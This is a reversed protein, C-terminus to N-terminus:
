EHTSHTTKQPLQLTFTAGKGPGDSHAILAGGMEKAALAGRHLGSDRGDKEDTFGRSFIRGLDERAIGAGNDSVAIQIRDGDDSARITLKKARRRSADCAQRANRVLNVLIPLVKHKEATVALGASFEKIVQINRRARTSADIKLADEVLDAVKFTEPAGGSAMASSQPTTVIVRVHELDEHLQALEEIAAQQEGVLHKALEALFGPLKRGKPDKTLFAGLNAEHEGLLAAARAVSAAKSKRLSEAVRSSAAKVSDLASGVERLVGTAVETMGARRSADIREKQMAMLEATREEVRKELNAQAELLDEKGQQHATIDTCVALYQYPQGTEDLFPVVTTDLWFLSGDKARNRIEGNWVQGAGITAWLHRMFEQSHHGSNILRHDQSLLEEGSYKSIVCFRENVFTIKGDADTVAVINHEDLAAKLYNLEANVGELNARCHCVERVETLSRRILIFLLTAEIIVWGGHELWRWPSAAAVGFVSQPWFLGRALHDMAVVTTATVLVRWDRYFALFVLSGFIHFHTEIRGGTLHIWLASTLMQAVAIVHRTLPQGPYKRTLFVPLAAIAGGLFIAARVSQNSAGAWAEPSIWLAAAIGALWQFIMLRAFLRDTRQYLANAAAAFLAGAREEVAAQSRIIMETSANSM